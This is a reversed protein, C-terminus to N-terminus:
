PYPPTAAGGQDPNPSCPLGVRGVSRRRGTPQGNSRALAPLFADDVLRGIPTRTTRQYSLPLEGGSLGAM